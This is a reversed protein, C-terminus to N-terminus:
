EGLDVHRRPTSVRRVQFIVLTGDHSFGFEVDQARGTASELVTALEALRSVEEETLTPRGTQGSELPVEV